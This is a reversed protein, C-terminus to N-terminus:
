VVHESELEPNILDGGHGKRKIWDGDPHGTGDWGELGCMADLLHPYCYRYKYGIETLGCFLGVTFMLHNLGCFGHGEIYRVDIYGNEELWAILKDQDM